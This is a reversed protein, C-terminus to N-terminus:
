IASAAWRITTMCASRTPSSNPMFRGAKPMARFASRDQPHAAPEQQLACARRRASPGAPRRPVRHDVARIEAMRATMCTSISSAPRSGDLAPGQSFASAAGPETAPPVRRVEFSYPPLRKFVTPLRPRIANLRQNCYAIIEAKGDDTNPYLNQPGQLAGCASASTGKTLGQAKLLTDVRASIERAQDLGLQHVEDPTMSTTTSSRLTAAYFAEGDKIKWVGASHDATARLKKTEAIQRDLAPAIKDTYIAAAKPRLQADLGKDKARKAISTVLITQDAPLRTGKL